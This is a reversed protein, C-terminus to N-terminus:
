FLEVDGGDLSHQQVSSAEALACIGDRIEILPEICAAVATPQMVRLARISLSNMREVRTVTADLIQTVMDEFQLAQVAERVSTELRELLQKLASSGGDLKHVSDTLVSQLERASATDRAGEADAGDLGLRYDRVVLRLRDALVASESALRKVDSAVRRLTREAEETGRVDLQVSLSEAPQARALGDLTGAWGATHDITDSFRGLHATVTVCETSVRAVEDVCLRLLAESAAALRPSEGGQTYVATVVSLLLERQSAAAAELARFSTDLRVAADRAIARARELDARVLVATANLAAEIDRILDDALGQTDTAPM